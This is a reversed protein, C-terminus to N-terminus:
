PRALYHEIVALKDPNTLQELAAALSDYQGHRQRLAAPTDCAVIEGHSVVAIRDALREVIEPVPTAIVVTVKRRAALHRLVHELALMASPDLGGSFPEDLLLIPAESILASALAIKKRQGTSYSYIHSDGLKDLHFLSLLRDMHDFLQEPTVQYLLGTAMLFERGTHNEPVWPEAPQYAILRRCANEEEPTRRRVHGDIIVQGTQAHLIGAMLSLLTSKGMGNPGMLGVIEGAQVTISVNKLVPKVSYHHSVERVEIKGNM